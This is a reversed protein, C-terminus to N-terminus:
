FKIQLQDLVLDFHKLSEVVGVNDLVKFGVVVFVVDVQHLFVNWALLKELMYDLLWVALETFSHGAVIEFFNHPCNSVAVSLSHDM